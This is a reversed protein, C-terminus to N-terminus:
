IDEFIVAILSAGPAAGCEHSIVVGVRDTARIRLKRSGAM